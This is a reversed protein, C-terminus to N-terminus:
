KWSGATSRCGGASIRPSEAWTSTTTASCRSGCRPCRWPAATSRPGRGSCVCRPVRSASASTACGSRSRSRFPRSSSSKPFTSGSARAHPPSGPRSASWRSWGRSASRSIAPSTTWASWTRAALCRSRCTWGRVSWAAAVASCCAELFTRTSSSGARVWASPPSRWRRGPFGCSMASCARMSDSTCRRRHERCGLIRHTDTGGPREGPLATVEAPEGSGSPAVGHLPRGRRRLLRSTLSPVFTFAVFLSAMLTLAVVAVLPLYVIRLEGQFYLFPIFVVLTTFTATLIPLVVDRAGKESAGVPDTGGEWKRFINELVVIANDVILGFGLALGMMTMLNLSMGGFYILNLSILIAFVITSFVVVATRFSRLFLLLVSFIVGIAILARNRLETFERNILEAQNRILEFRTGPPNMRELEALRAEVVGALRVANTGRERHIRMNIAPGRDIRYYSEPDEFTERITAVDVLRVPTSASRGGALPLIAERVERVTEPRNRITVPWELDEARVGGVHMLLDLSAVAQRAQMVTIGLAAIRVPDLEIELVRNRGASVEVDSIGRLQLLEPVVVADLHLRLAETMLPGTFVYELLPSTAQAEIAAPVYPTIAISSVGGPLEPELGAMRESLELRVFDTDVERAFDVVISARGETTTSTIDVVGKTQQVAAEIPSTVRAEMAEPSSGPWSVQVTFRPFTADPMHEVPVNWWAAVGLLAVSTYVMAVAVPRRISLRIM